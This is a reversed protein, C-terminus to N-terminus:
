LFLKNQLWKSNRYNSHQNVLNYYSKVLHNVIVNHYIDGYTTTVWNDYIHISMIYIGVIEEEEARM